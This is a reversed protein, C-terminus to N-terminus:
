SKYIPYLHYSILTSGKINGGHHELHAFARGPRQKLYDEVHDAFPTYSFEKPNGREIPKQFLLHLRDTYSQFDEKSKKMIRRRNIEIPASVKNGRHDLKRHIVGVEFGVLGDLGKQPIISTDRVPQAGLGLIENLIVTKIKDTM